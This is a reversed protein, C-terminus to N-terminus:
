AALGFERASGKKIIEIAIANRDHEPSLNMRVAEGILLSSARLVSPDLQFEPLLLPALMESMGPTQWYRPMHNGNHIVTSSRWGDLDVVLKARYPDAHAGSKTVFPTNSHMRDRLNERSIGFDPSVLEKVVQLGDWAIELPLKEEAKEALIKVRDLLEPQAATHIIRGFLKKFACGLPSGLKGEPIQATALVDNFEDSHFHLKTLNQRASRETVDMSFDLLLADGRERFLHRLESPQSAAMNIFSNGVLGVVSGFNRGVYTLDSYSFHERRDRFSEATIGRDDGCDGIVPLEGSPPLILGNQHRRWLEDGDLIRVSPLEIKHM